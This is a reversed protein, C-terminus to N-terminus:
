VLTISYKKLGQSDFAGSIEICRIIRRGESKFREHADWFELENVTITKM